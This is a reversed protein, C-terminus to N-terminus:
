LKGLAITKGGLRLTYGNEDALAHMLLELYAQRLFKAEERKAGVRCTLRGPRFAITSPDLNEREGSALTLEVPETESKWAIGTVFRATDEVEIRKFDGGIRIFYGEGDRDLFRHFAAVTKGHTIEDGDSLFVGEKTLRITERDVFIPHSDPHDAM